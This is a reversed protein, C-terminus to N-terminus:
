CTEPERDSGVMPVTWRLHSPELGMFQCLRHANQGMEGHMSGHKATDKSDRM